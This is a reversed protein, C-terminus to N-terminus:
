AEWRSAAERFSSFKIMLYKFLLRSSFKIHKWGGTEQGAPGKPKVALSNEEHGLILKFTHVVCASDQFPSLLFVLYETLRIESFCRAFTQYLTWNRRVYILLTSLLYLPFITFWYYSSYHIM